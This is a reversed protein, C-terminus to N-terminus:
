LKNGEEDFNAKLAKEIFFVPLIIFLFQIFSLILMIVLLKEDSSNYFPIYILASFLLINIGAIFWIRGALRHAFKWTEQNKMSMKTRYGLIYNINKPCKLYMFLGAIIQFIPIILSFIFYLWFWM